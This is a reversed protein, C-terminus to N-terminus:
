NCFSCSPQGCDCGNSKEHYASSLSDYVKDIIFQKDKDSLIVGNKILGQIIENSTATPYSM